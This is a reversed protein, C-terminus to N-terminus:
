NSDNIAHKAETVKVKVRHGQIYVQGLYESSTGAYWCSAWSGCLYLAIRIINIKTHDIHMLRLINHVFKLVTRFACKVIFEACDCDMYGFFAMSYLEFEGLLKNCWITYQIDNEKICDSDIKYRKTTQLYLSWEPYLPTPITSSDLWWTLDMSFHVTQDCHM